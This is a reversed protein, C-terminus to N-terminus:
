ALPPSTTMIDYVRARSSSTLDGPAAVEPTQVRLNAADVDDMM